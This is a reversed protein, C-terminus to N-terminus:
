PHHEALHDLPTEFLQDTKAITKQTQTSPGAKSGKKSSAAAAQMPAQSRIIAMMSEATMTGDLPQGLAMSLSLAHKYSLDEGKSKLNILEEGLKTKMSKYLGPYMTALGTMDSPELTGDRIEKLVLLPQQALALGRDYADQQMPDVPSPEDLPTKQIKKPKLQDLYKIASATHAALSASHEPLLHGLSGGLDFLASPDEKLKELHEGLAKHSAEDPEVANAKGFLDKVHHDLSAAGRASSSLYEAASRFQEPDAGKEMMPGSLRQLIPALHSKPISGTLAHGHLLEAANQHDGAFLSAGVKRGLSPKTDPPALEPHQSSVHSDRADELISRHEDPNAMGSRGIKKILGLLGHIIVAHGITSNPDDQNQSQSPSLVSVGDAFLPCSKEHPRTTECFSSVAGGLALGYCHCNPHPRGYSNCSENRCPLHRDDAGYDTM